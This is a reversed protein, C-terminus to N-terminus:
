ESSGGGQFYELPVDWEFPEYCNGELDQCVIFVRDIVETKSGFANANTFCIPSGTNIEHKYYRKYPIGQYDRDEYGNNLCKSETCNAAHVEENAWIVSYGFKPAGHVGRFFEHGYPHGMSMYAELDTVVEYDLLSNAALMISVIKEEKTMTYDGNDDTFYGDSGCVVYATFNQPITVNFSYTGYGLAVSPSFTEPLWEIVPRASEWKSDTSYVVNGIPIPHPTFLLVTARSYLGTEDKAMIVIAYESGPTHDMISIEGDNVPYNRSIDTFIKDTSNIYMYSEAISAKGGLYNTSKWYNESTRGIWYLYEAAKGGTTTVGLKVEDPSNLLVSVEVNLANYQLATTKCELSLVEGYKGEPNTAVAFLIYTTEPKVKTIFDTAKVSVGSAPGKSGKEFLYMAKAAPDAYKVADKETLFAYYIDEASDSSLAATVDLAGAKVDAKVTVSAGPTLSLTSFEEVLVDAKTYQKGEEAVVIWAVYETATEPEVGSLTFVSGEYTMPETFKKYFGDGYNLKILVDEVVFDAKLGVGMYYADVGKLDMSLQADIFSEDKVEFKVSSYDMVIKRFTGEKFYFMNDEANEDYFAPIAWFVYEEGPVLAEGAIKELPEDVLDADAIGYGDPYSYKSLLERATSLIVAEDYESSKCVGYAYKLLGSYMRVNAGTYTVEFRKFPDTSLQLKAVTAKGGELVAVVKLEGDAAAIGSEILAASPATVDFYEAGMYIDETEKVRWGDPIQLVYDVVGKADIQISQTEGAPVYFNDLFESTLGNSLVFHFGCAGDVTVTFTMDDGFTFTVAYIEGTLEDTITKYSSFISNGSLPYEKGGIVIYTEGDKTIVEPMESVVPIAEGKENLFYQTKGDKDIYAWYDVGGSTYYTVFSQMDKEPLLTLTKGNSLEVVTTGDSSPTIGTIFIKGKLLDNLTKIEANLRQELEYIREIIDDIKDKIETDDYPNEVLTTKTCSFALVCAMCVLCLSRSLRKVISATIIM